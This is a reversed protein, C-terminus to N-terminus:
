EHRKGELKDALVQWGMWCMQGMKKAQLPCNICDQIIPPCGAHGYIKMAFEFKQVPTILTGTRATM